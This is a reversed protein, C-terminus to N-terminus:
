RLIVHGQYLEMDFFATSGLMPYYFVQVQVPFDFKFNNFDNGISGHSLFCLHFKLRTFTKLSPFYQECIYQLVTKRFIELIDWFVDVVLDNRVAFSKVFTAKKAREQCKCFLQKRFCQQVKAKSALLLKFDVPCMTKKWASVKFFKPLKCLDVFSCTFWVCYLTRFTFEAYTWYTPDGYFPLLYNWKTRRFENM